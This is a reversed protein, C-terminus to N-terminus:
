WWAPVASFSRPTYSVRPECTCTTFRSVSRAGSSASTAAIRASAAPSKDISHNPRMAQTSRKQDRRNLWPLCARARLPTRMLDDVKAGRKESSPERHQKACRYVLAAGANSLRDMAFPPRARYRLLRELAARHHAEICV